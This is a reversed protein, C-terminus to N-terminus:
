AVQWWDLCEACPYRANTVPLRIGPINPLRRRDRREQYSAAPWRFCANRALEQRAASWPQSSCRTGRANTPSNGRKTGAASRNTGFCERSRPEQHTHIHNRDTCRQKTYQGAADNAIRAVTRGNRANFTASCCYIDVRNNPKSSVVMGTGIAQEIDAPGAGARVERLRRLVRQSDFTAGSTQDIVGGGASLVTIETAKGFRQVLSQAQAIASDFCTASAALEQGARSTEDVPAEMSLSNDIVLVVSHENGGAATRWATLVPRALCLALVIPILMRLLLLLLAQWQVRRTNIKIASELLHMAGWDVLKFRTRNLLHIILPISAALTGGLLMANLFMM